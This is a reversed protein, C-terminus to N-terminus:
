SKTTEQELQHELQFLVTNEPVNSLFSARLESNSIMKARVQLLTQGKELAKQASDPTEATSLIQYASLYFRVPYQMAWIDNAGPQEVISEVTQRAKDNQGGTQLCRALGMEAEIARVSNNAVGKSQSQEYAHKAKVVDGLGELALALTLWTEGEGTRNKSHQYIELAQGIHDRAAAFNELTLEIAGQIQVAAAIGSEDEITQYLTLAQDVYPRALEVCGLETYIAALRNLSAAEGRRNGTFQYIVLAEQGYAQARSYEGKRLFTGALSTLANAQSNRDGIARSMELAQQNYMQSDGYHNLHKYLTGLALLSKIEVRRNNAKELTAQAAHLHERAADFQGQRMALYALHIRSESELISDKAQRAAELGAQASTAAEDIKNMARVYGARRNYVQAQRAPDGSAQALDRLAELDALQTQRRGQEYHIQECALLLEFRQEQTPSNMGLQNIANLASIYWHLANLNAYIAGAHRAAQISYVLGKELEDARLFHHALSEAIYKPEAPYRRELAEGAERHMLRRRLSSLGDYLVEQIKAHSFHLV